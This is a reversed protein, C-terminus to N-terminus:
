RLLDTNQQFTRRSALIDSEKNSYCWVPMNDVVWQHTYTEHIRERKAKIRRFLQSAQSRPEDLRTGM